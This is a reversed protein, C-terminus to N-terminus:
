RRFDKWGIKSQRSRVIFHLIIFKLLVIKKSLPDTGIYLSSMCILNEVTSIKDMITNYFDEPRDLFLIDSVHVRFVPGNRQLSQHFENM